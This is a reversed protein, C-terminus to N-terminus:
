GRSDYFSGRGRLQLVLHAVLEIGIFALGGVWCLQEAPMRALLGGAGEGVLAIATLKMALALLAGGIFWTAIRAAAQVARSAVLRPRLFNLFFVEVGHGGLSPWLALLTGIGWRMLWGAGGSGIPWRALVAGIVLAISITRALTQHFPERCPPAALTSLSM